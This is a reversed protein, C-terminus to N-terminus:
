IIKSCFASVTSKILRFSIPYFCVVQLLPRMWCNIFSLLKEMSSLCCCNLSWNKTNRTTSTCCNQLYFSVLSTICSLHLLDGDAVLVSILLLWSKLFNLEDTFHSKHYWYVSYVLSSPLRHHWAFAWHSKLLIEREREKERVSERM